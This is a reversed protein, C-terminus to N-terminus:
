NGGAKGVKGEAQFKKLKKERAADQADDAALIADLADYDGGDDLVVGGKGVGSAGASASASSDSPGAAINTAKKALGAFKSGASAKVNVAFLTADATAKAVSDRKFSYKQPGVNLAIASAGKADFTYAATSSGYIYSGVNSGAATVKDKASTTIPLLLAPVLSKESGKYAALESDSSSGKVYIKGNTAVFSSAAGAAPKWDLRSKTGDTTLTAKAVAAGKADVVSWESKSTSTFLSQGATVASAALLLSMAMFRKM